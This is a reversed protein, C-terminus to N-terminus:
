YGIALYKAPAAAGGATNYYAASFGTTSSTTVTWTQGQNTTFAGNASVVVSQCATPFAIPFTVATTANTVTSPVSGWQILAGNPLYTYGNASLSAGGSTGSLTMPM